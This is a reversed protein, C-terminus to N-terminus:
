GSFKHVVSVEIGGVYDEGNIGGDLVGDKSKGVLGEEGYSAGKVRVSYGHFRRVRGSKKGKCGGEDEGNSGTLAEGSTM